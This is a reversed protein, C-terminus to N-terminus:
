PPSSVGQSVVWQPSPQIFTLSNHDLMHGAARIARGTALHFGLDADRAEGVGALFAFVSPYDLGIEDHGRRTGALRAPGEWEAGTHPGPM